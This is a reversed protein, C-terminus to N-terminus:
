IGFFLGPKQQQAALVALLQVLLQAKVDLDFVQLLFNPIHEFQLLILEAIPQQLTLVSPAVIGDPSVVAM